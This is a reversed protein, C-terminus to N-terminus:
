QVWIAAAYSKHAAAYGPSAWLKVYLTTTNAPISPTLWNEAFDADDSPGGLSTTLAADTFVECVLDTLPDGATLVHLQKGAASAPVAVKIVDVDTATALTAAAFYGPLALSQAAAGTDNPATTEVVPAPLHATRAGVRYSYGAKGSNDYYIAYLKPEATTLIERYAPALALRDAHKGSAPLIILRGNADPDDALAEAIVAAPPTGPVLEYLASAFPADEIATVPGDGLPQARRPAVDFSGGPFALMRGPPGSTVAIAGPVAGVDILAVAEIALPTVDRIALETGPPADLALNIYGLGDNTVDFPHEQDRNRITVFALSGQALTGDVIVDIPSEVAFGGALLHSAGGESVTVDRTGVTADADITLDVLLASPSAVAVADVTVGQGFSVRVGDSWATGDGSIQVRATRAVFGSAPAIGSLAAGDDTSDSGGCAAVVVMVVMGIWARM